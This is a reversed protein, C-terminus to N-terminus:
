RLAQLTTMLRRYIAAHAARVGPKLLAGVVPDFHDFRVGNLDNLYEYYWRGRDLTAGRAFVGQGGVPEPHATFPYRQSITSVAGDNRRWESLSLDGAGWGPIPTAGPDFQIERAQYDYASRLIINTKDTRLWESPPWRWDKTETDLSLYYTNANTRFAKNAKFCGQLSLDFGLNDEGRVFPSAGLQMLQSLVDGSESPWHDLMLDFNQTLDILGATSAKIFTLATSIAGGQWGSLLGTLKDCGFKYTLLSGNLVGAVSVVVEIWDASTGRKWFDQALLAQLQLCTHAGASHGILIIPNAASWGPIAGSGYDRGYRAHGAAASHAEGYDTVGGALQAFLECARDHFSSLPGVKAEHVAFSQELIKRGDGWYPVGLLEGPGWGFLGHVLAIQTSKLHNPM